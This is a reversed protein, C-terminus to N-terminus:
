NIIQVIQKHAQYYFDSHVKYMHILNGAHIKEIATDNSKIKHTIKSLKTTRKYELYKM